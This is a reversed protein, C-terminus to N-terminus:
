ASAPAGVRSSQWEVLCPQGDALWAGPVAPASPLGCPLYLVSSITSSAFRPSPAGEDPIFAHRCLADQLSGHSSMLAQAWAADVQGPAGALADLVRSRRAASNGQLMPPEDEVWHAALEPTVFHNATALYAGDGTGGNVEV